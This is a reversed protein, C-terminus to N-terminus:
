LCSSYDFTAQSRQFFNLYKESRDRCDRTHLARFLLIRLKTIMAIVKDLRTNTGGLRETKEFALAPFLAVIFPM